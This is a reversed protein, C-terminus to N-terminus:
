PPRGGFTHHVMKGVHYRLVSLSLVLDIGLALLFGAADTGLETWIQGIQASAAVM